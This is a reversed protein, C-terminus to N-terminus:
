CVCLVCACLVSPTLEGAATKTLVGAGCSTVATRGHTRAQNIENTPMLDKRVSQVLLRLFETNENWLVACAMYGANKESFKASTILKLAEM